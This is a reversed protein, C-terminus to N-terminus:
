TTVEQTTDIGAAVRVEPDEGIANAVSQGMRGRFGTVLLNLM